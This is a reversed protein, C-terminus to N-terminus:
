GSTTTTNGGRTSRASYFWTRMPRASNVSDCDGVSVRPLAQSNQFVLSKRRRRELLNDTPGFSRLDRDGVRHSASV